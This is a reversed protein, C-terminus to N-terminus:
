INFKKVDKDMKIIDIDPSYILIENKSVALTQGSPNSYNPIDKKFRIVYPFEEEDDYYEIIQGIEEELFNRLKIDAFESNDIKVYDGIKPYKLQEFKKIYKM